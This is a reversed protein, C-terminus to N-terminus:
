RPLEFYSERIPRQYDMTEIRFEVVVGDEREFRLERPTALGQVAHQETVEGLLLRGSDDWQELRLALWTEPDLWVRRERFPPATGLARESLLLVPRGDLEAREIAEARLSFLSPDGGSFPDRARLSRIRRVNPERDNASYAYLSDGEAEEQMLWSEGANVRPQEIRVLVRERGESDDRRITLRSYGKGEVRQRLTATFHSGQLRERWSRWAEQPSPTALEAAAAPALATLLLLLLLAARLVPGRLSPVPLLM